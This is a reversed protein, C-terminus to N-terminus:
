PKTLTIAASLIPNDEVTIEFIRRLSTGGSAQLSPNEVNEDISSIVAKQAYKAEHAFAIDFRSLISADMEELTFRNLLLSVYRVTNVHRYYDLDCYQFTYESIKAPTFNKHRSMRPIPCPFAPMMEPPVVTGATGVSKHTALDIIMWITRGYGLMEGNVSEVSFCRESYHANYSEIWTSLFYTEGNVPWRAMEVSLRSLVWGLGKPGLELFGIGLENAHDTAIDIMQSVLLPLPLEQAANCESPKAMLERKLINDSM